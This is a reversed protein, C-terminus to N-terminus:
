CLICLKFFIVHSDWCPRILFSPMPSMQGGDGKLSDICDNFRFFLLGNIKELFSWKKQPLKKYHPSTFLKHPAARMEAPM